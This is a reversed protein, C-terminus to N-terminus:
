AAARRRRNTVADHCLALFREAVTAISFHRQAAARAVATLRPGERLVANRASALAEAVSNPDYESFQVGATSTYDATGNSPGLVVARGAALAEAVSFGFNENQSPQVLVDVEGFLKPVADHLCPGEFSVGPHQEYARLLPAASRDSRLNGVLRARVTPEREFLIRFGELFLDLRKRPVARGLWLFTVTGAHNGLAPIDAYRELKIPYAITRLRESAVGFRAWESEAWTSGCLYLDSWDLAARAVARRYAYFLQVAAYRAMGHTELLNKAVAATRLAAAETHPPSQPWCALPLRSPALAQADTCLVLTYNAHAHEAQILRIAERQYAVHAVQAVGAVPYPSPLRRAAQHLREFFPVRVDVFRYGPLAELSRPDNFGRMGYFDVRAGRELLARLLTPFAGAGSGVGDALIGLVALNM